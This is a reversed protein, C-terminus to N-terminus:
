RSRVAEGIVCRVACDIMQDVSVRSTNFTISFIEPGFVAGAFHERCFSERARDTETVFEEAQELSFGRREAMATVRDARPAVLRLHLGGPIDRTIYVGGRGVIVVRGAQALARITSAVRRYIKFESAHRAESSTCLDAFFRELWNHNKETLEDILDRSTGLDAAVKEVLERDWSTWRREEDGEIANLREVLSDALAKAGAGAQRSITIFPVAPASSGPKGGAGAMSQVRLSGLVPQLSFRPTHITHIMFGRIREGPGPYGGNRRDMLLEELIGCLGSDSM